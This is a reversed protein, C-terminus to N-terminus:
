EASWDGSIAYFGSEKYGFECFNTPLSRQAAVSSAKGALTMTSEPSPTVRKKETV